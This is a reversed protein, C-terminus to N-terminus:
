DILAHMLNNNIMCRLNVSAFTRPQSNKSIHDTFDFDVWFRVQGTVRQEDRDYRSIAFHACCPDVHPNHVNLIMEGLSFRDYM